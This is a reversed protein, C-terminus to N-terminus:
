EGRVVFDGEDYYEGKEGGDDKFNPGVSYLLYGNKELRYVLPERRFVDAPVEPLYAPVLASLDAPYRGNEARCAALALATLTLRRYAEALAMKEDCRGIIPITAGQMIRGFVRDRERRAAKSGSTRLRAAAAPDKKYRAYTAEIEKVINPTAAMARCRTLYDRSKLAKAWASYPSNVTRLLVGADLPMESGLGKTERSLIEETVGGLLSMAMDLALFREGTDIAGRLGPLPSMARLDALLRRARAGTLGDAGAIALDVDLAFKELVTGLLQHLLSPAQAVLRALRHLALSDEVAGDLDGSGIRLMARCKLMRAPLKPGRDSSIFDLGVMPAHEDARVWPAYLRPSRTAAVVRDLPDANAELWGAIVPYQEATWPAKMATNYEKVARELARSPGPKPTAELVARLEPPLKKKIEETNRIEEPIAVPRPTTPRLDEEPATALVHEDFDTLYDGREPLPQMGLMALARARTEEALARPGLARIIPVAANNERTVGRSLIENMAAVYDITGDARVPGLVHTTERSIPIKRRGSRSSGCGALPVLLACALLLLRRSM